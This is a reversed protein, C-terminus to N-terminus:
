DVLDLKPTWTNFAIRLQRALYKIYMVKIFYKSFGAVSYTSLFLKKKELMNIAYMCVKYLFYRTSGM